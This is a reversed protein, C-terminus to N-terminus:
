MLYIGKEGKATTEPNNKQVLFIYVLNTFATVPPKSMPEETEQLHQDGGM